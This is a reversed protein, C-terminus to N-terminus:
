VDRTSLALTHTSSVLEAEATATRRSGVGLTWPVFVAAHHIPSSLTYAVRSTRAPSRVLFSVRPPRRTSSAFSHSDTSSVHHRKSSVAYRCCSLRHYLGMSLCRCFGLHIVVALLLVVALALAPYDLGRAPVGILPM